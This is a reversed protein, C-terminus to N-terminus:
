HLTERISAMQAQEQFYITKMEVEWNGCNESVKLRFRTMVSGMVIYYFHICSFFTYIYYVLHTHTQRNCFQWSLGSPGENTGALPRTEPWVGAYM